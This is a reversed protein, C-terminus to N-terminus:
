DSLSLFGHCFQGIRLVVKQSNWVKVCRSLCLPTAVSHSSGSRETDWSGEFDVM